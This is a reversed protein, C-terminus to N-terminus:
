RDPVEEKVGFWWATVEFNRNGNEDAEPLDPYGIIQSFPLFYKGGLTAEVLYSKASKFEIKAEFFETDDNRRYGM